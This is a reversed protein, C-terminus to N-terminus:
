TYIFLSRKVGDPGTEPRVGGEPKVVGIPGISESLYVQKASIQKNDYAWNQKQGGRRRKNPVQWHTIKQKWSNDRIIRM